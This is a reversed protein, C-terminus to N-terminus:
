LQQWQKLLNVCIFVNTICSVIGLVALVYCFVIQTVTHRLYVLHLPVKAMACIFHVLEITVILTCLVIDVVAVVRKESYLETRPMVCRICILQVAAQIFLLASSVLSFIPVKLVLVGLLLWILAFVLQTANIFNAVNLSHDHRAKLKVYADYTSKDFLGSSTNSYSSSSERYSTENSINIYNHSSIASQPAAHLQNISRPSLDEFMMQERSVNAQYM